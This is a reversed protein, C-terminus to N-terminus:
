RISIIENMIKSYYSIESGSIWLIGPKASSDHESSDPNRLCDHAYLPLNCTHQKLQGEVLFSFRQALCHPTSAMECERPRRLSSTM